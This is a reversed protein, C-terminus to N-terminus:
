RKLFAIPHSGGYAHIDVLEWGLKGLQNLQENFKSINKGSKFGMGEPELQVVKYEWSSQRM